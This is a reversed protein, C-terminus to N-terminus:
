SRKYSLISVFPYDSACTFRIVPLERRLVDRYTAGIQARRYCGVREAVWSVAEVRRTTSLLWLLRQRISEVGDPPFVLCLLCGKAWTM